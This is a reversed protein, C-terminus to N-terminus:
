GSKQEGGAQTSSHTSSHAVFDASLSLYQQHLLDVKSTLTKLDGSNVIIDEADQVREERSPQASMISLVQEHSNQDRAMVRQLQLAAPADVVLLRQMMPTKGLGTSLVLIAYPSASLALQQQLDQIIALHTQSELFRRHQKDAFIIERLKARNLTRDALLINQGFREVIASHAPTGPEVVKRASIDADAITIGHGAFLDSVTSKGTGIGGRLGVVFTKPKTHESANM